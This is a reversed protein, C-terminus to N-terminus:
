VFLVLWSLWLLCVTPTQIALARGPLKRVFPSCDLPVGLRQGAEWWLDPGLWDEPGDIPGRAGSSPLVLFGFRHFVSHSSVIEFVLQLLRRLDNGTIALSWIAPFSTMELPFYKGIVALLFFPIEVEDKCSLLIAPAFSTLANHCLWSLNRARKPIVQLLCEGFAPSFRRFTMRASLTYRQGKNWTNMFFSGLHM